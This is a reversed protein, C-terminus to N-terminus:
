WTVMDGSVDHCVGRCVCDGIGYHCLVFYRFSLIREMLKGYNSRASEEGFIEENKELATQLRDVVEMEVEASHLEEYWWLVTELPANESFIHKAEAPIAADRQAEIDHRYYSSKDVGECSAKNNADFLWEASGEINLYNRTLAVLAEHRSFGLSMISQVKQETSNQQANVANAGGNAEQGSIASFLRKRLFSYCKSLYPYQQLLDVINDKTAMKARRVLCNEPLKSDDTGEFIARQFYDCQFHKSPSPHVLDCIEKWNETGFNLLFFELRESTSIFPVFHHWSSNLSHSTIKCNQCFFINLLFSSTDLVCINALIYTTNLKM